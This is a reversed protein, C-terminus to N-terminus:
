KTAQAPDPLKAVLRLSITIEELQYHPILYAKAEYYGPREADTVEVRAKALPYRAKSAQSAGDPNLLVYYTIWTNLFKEIDARSMGSGVKKRLMTKLYHAFRSVAFVNPLKASLEASARPEDEYYDQPQQCSQGSIFVATPTNKVQTLGIFGYKSLQREKGDVLVVEAPGVPASLARGKFNYFAGEVLGGNEVGRISTCWGYDFFSNTVCEAFAYVANGWLFKSSDPGAINESYSFARSDDEKEYPSRMLIRPLVLGVYRSDPHQRFHAWNAHDTRELIESLDGITPLGKFDSLDFMSPSVGSIFPAHSVAAVEAIATLLKMDRESHSFEFDGIIAGYPTGGMVGYGTEHIKNFLESSLVKRGILDRALDQKTVNWLEIRLNASTPTQLLLREIGRWTAELQQFPKAHMVEDLQESISADIENISALILDELSAEITEEPATVFEDLLVAFDTQEAESRSPAYEKVARLLASDALKETAGTPASGTGAKANPSTSM